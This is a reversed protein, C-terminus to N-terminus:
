GAATAFPAFWPETLRRALSRGALLGSLHAKSEPGAASVAGVGTIVVRRRNDSFRTRGIEM